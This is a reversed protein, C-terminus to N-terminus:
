HIQMQWHGKYALLTAIATPKKHLFRLISAESIIYPFWLSSHIEWECVVRIRWCLSQIQYIYIDLFILYM